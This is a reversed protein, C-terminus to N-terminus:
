KYHVCFMNLLCSLSSSNGEQFITGVQCDVIPGKVPNVLITYLKSRLKLIPELSPRKLDNPREAVLVLQRNRREAIMATTSIMQEEKEAIFSEVAFRAKQADVADVGLGHIEPGDGFPGEVLEDFTTIFCSFDKVVAIEVDFLITNPNAREEVRTGRRHGVNKFANRIDRFRDTLVGTKGEISFFDNTFIFTIRRNVRTMRKVFDEINAPM